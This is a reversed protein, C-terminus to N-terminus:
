RVAIEELHVTMGGDAKRLAFTATLDSLHGDINLDYWIEGFYGYPNPEPHREVEKRQMEGGDGALTVKQDPRQQDYAKIVEEISEPDCGAEDMHDTLDYAAEYEEQELLSAWRDVLAILEEDSVSDPLPDV